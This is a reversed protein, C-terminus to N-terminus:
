FIRPYLLFAFLITTSCNFTLNYNCIYALSFTFVAYQTIFTALFTCMGDTDFDIKVILQRQTPQCRSHKLKDNGELM